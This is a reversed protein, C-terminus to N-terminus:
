KTHSSVISEIAKALAIDRETVKDAVEHTTLSFTLKNFNNAWNPHHHLEEAADAVSNVVKMAVAFDPLSYVATLTDNEFHWNPYEAIFAEITETSSPQINEM